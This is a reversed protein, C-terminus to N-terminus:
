KIIEVNGHHLNYMAGVIKIEGKEELERLVESKERIRDITLYVNNQVVKDVFEPNSSNHEGTIEKKSKEVAPTIKSLMQQMHGFTVKNDCAAKVAGCNEHGLVMVLKSHAAKCSYELSALIDVNEFNGAVRVVFIDGIAQDFITVVPVRSDICALVIAKPHQHDATQDMLAAYDVTRRKGSVFRKNGELLRNLVHDPTMASQMEETIAKNKVM